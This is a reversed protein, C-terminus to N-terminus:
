VGGVRGAGDGLLRNDGGLGLAIFRRQGINRGSNCALLGGIPLCLRKCLQFGLKVLGDILLLVRLNGRQKGLVLGLRLGIGIKDAKGLRLDGALM